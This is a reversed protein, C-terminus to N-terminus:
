RPPNNAELFPILAQFVALRGSASSLWHDEGELDVLEVDKGARRLATAFMESQAYPVVSDDRGHILLIPVNANQVMRTPSVEVLSGDNIRSAGMFRKWYRMVPTDRGGSRDREWDLMRPLDSVGAGAAACRYVGPDITPGAMAAYGGYSWGWICVRAPDVVGEAALYRVGDSLDTQMKRGWEGFGAEFHAKGFGVSGRFQPQLVAYGRSALLQSWYDFGPEDRAQPGGHPMVILPLDAVDRGPPLTLYAPIDTGDAAAYHIFRVEGLAEAPIGPYQAGIRVARGATLDVLQYTGPDSPGETSIIFKTYDPTASVLQVNQDPYAAEVSAWAGAVNEETFVYEEDNDGLFYFGLLKGTRPHYIPSAEGVNGFALRRPDSGDLPIEYLHDGGDEPVRVLVSEDTRGFGLLSPTDIMHDESTWIQALGVNRRASVWWRGSGADWESRAVARGDAGMVGNFDDRPTGVGTDLDVEFTQLKFDRDFSRVFTRPVGNVDHVFPPGALINVIGSGGSIRTSSMNAGGGVTRNLLTVFSRTRVNYSQATYLESDSTVNAIDAYSSTYILVHDDDAWRVSRVKQTGLDVVGLAEGSVTQVGLRRSTGAQGVFAIREGNPSIALNSLAPLSAYAEIPPPAPQAVAPLAAVATLALAGAAFISRIM